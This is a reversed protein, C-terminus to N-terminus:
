PSRAGRVVAILRRFTEDDGAGKWRNAFRCVVQLNGAEYHGDSDIRDLSVFLEADGHPEDLDFSLSTLACLGEQLDLLGLIHDQLSAASAFRMAKIKATSTAERGDARQATRAATDAMRKVAAMLADAERYAARQRADGVRLEAYGSAARENRTRWKSTGHWLELNGGEILAQTYSAYEEGLEQLTAETSLFDRAKAHLSRWLLPTGGRSRNSWPECPKHCIVVEEGRAIPEVKREFSPPDPRSTTWWVEEGGRHIWLDGSTESVIRMLNFWRSAVSRTPTLGAATKGRMRDAVYGERDGAEWFPQAAAANMTAVTGRELCVPWEYNERGFNAVFVRVVLDDQGGWRGVVQDTM